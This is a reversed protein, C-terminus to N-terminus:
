LRGARQRWAQYIGHILFFERGRRREEDHIRRAVFLTHSGLNKVREVRFERIRLAFEPIPLDFAPSLCATFPLGPVDIGEKNHNKGLSYALRAEEVPLSSVALRGAREVLRVVPTVTKLAFCFFRESAAGMLNMPFVNTCNGDSVSVLGTPRPCIYFVCMSHVDSASMSIESNPSHWRQYAYQLYRMWLRPLPLCYNRSGYSRFLHLSQEDLPLTEFPVLDIKGLLQGDGAREHFFLSLQKGGLEAATLERDMGIGILFPAGCAMFHRHTVELPSGLGKLWVVIESQPEHLGITHQQSFDTPGLLLRKLIQKGQQAAPM